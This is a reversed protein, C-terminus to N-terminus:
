VAAHVEIAQDDMRHGLWELTQIVSTGLEVSIDTVGVASESLQLERIPHSTWQLYLGYHSQWRVAESRVGM